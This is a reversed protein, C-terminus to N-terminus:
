SNGGEKLISKTKEVIKLDIVTDSQSIKVIRHFIVEIGEKM